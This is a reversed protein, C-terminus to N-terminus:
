QASGAALVPKVAALAPRGAGANGPEPLQRRLEAASRGHAPVGGPGAPAPVALPPPSIPKPLQRSAPLRADITGAREDRGERARDGGPPAASFRLDAAYSRGTVREITQRVSAEMPRMFVNPFVGM